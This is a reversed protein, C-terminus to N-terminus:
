EKEDVGSNGGARPPGSDGARAKLSRIEANLHRINAWLADREASADMGGEIRGRGLHQTLVQGLLDRFDARPHEAILREMEPHNFIAEVLLPLEDRPPLDLLPM